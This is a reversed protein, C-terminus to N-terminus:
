LSLLTKGLIVPSSKIGYNGDRYIYAALNFVFYLCMVQLLIKSFTASTPLVMHYQGFVQLWRQLLQKECVFCMKLQCARNEQTVQIDM